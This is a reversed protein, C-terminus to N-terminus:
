CGALFWQIYREIGEEIRVKPAFGLLKKAKTVDAFTIPVDGPVAEKYRVDAKRGLCREIIKIVERLEVTNAGGLNVIEFRSPMNIANVLGSVIDSVYTFDRQASGDGYVEIPRGEHILRTFKAIAMDPRGREGYVTFFRLCKVPLSYLHSYSFCYLEGARKTAAYPSITSTIPDDESFPVKSNIGYVSSSSAFVFNKLRRAKVAELLNLTGACNVSEYLLPDDISPRVGARAALHCVVDPSEKKVVRDLAAKDRIDMEHLTFNPNDLHPRVNERKIRPDYFDNFEDIVAVREGSALLTSVLHSGIFGAGGTVLIKM